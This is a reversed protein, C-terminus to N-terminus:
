VGRFNKRRLERCYFKIPRFIIKILHSIRSLRKSEWTFHCSELKAPLSYVITNLDLQVGLWSEHQTNETSKCLIEQSLRAFTGRFCHRFLIHGHFGACVCLSCRQLPLVLSSPLCLFEAIEEHLKAAHGQMRPQRGSREWRETQM